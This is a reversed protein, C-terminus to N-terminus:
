SIGRDNLERWCTGNEMEKLSWQNAALNWAWQERDLLLPEEIRSLDPTGMSYAGCPNETCFVPIGALLADVAANSSCTVLAWCNELDAALPHETSRALSSERIRWPRDTVQELATVTDALWKRCDMGWVEGYAPSPPCVLIHKGTERWPKIALGLRRWREPGAKGSGDVQRANKTVRYHANMEGLYCNDAYYWTQGTAQAQLLTEKLGRLAGYMFVDGPRLPALPVIKGGCGRAFARCIRESKKHRSAYCHIM